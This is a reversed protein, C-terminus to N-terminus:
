LSNFDITFLFDFFAKNMEPVYSTRFGVQSPAYFRLFHVDGLFEAGLSNMKDKYTGAIHGNKFMFPKLYAMDSFLTVTLRKFYVYKGISLDPYILPFKYDVTFISMRSTSLKSYGRPYRILDAYSFNDGPNKVQMGGYLKIGHDRFAGPLYVVGQFTKLVGMGSTLPISHRLTLDTIFGFRPYVGRYTQPIIQQYYLRYLFSQYAKETFNKPTSSNKKNSSYSYRVLPEFFRKYKGRDFRFPINVDAYFNHNQYSFSEMTTDSKIVEGFSNKTQTILKYQSKNKGTNFEFSMVPYWGKYTYRASYRGTRDNVDWKYGVTTLATGLKNQSMLSIGPSFLYNESDIYIPAWSHFNFLHTIKHYPKSMFKLSDPNSFDPIGREQSALKEALPYIEDPKGTVMKWNGTAPLSILRYGNSTYDSLLIESKSASVSPFDCGFRPEYVMFEENKIPDYSYLGDKHNSGAIFFLKNEATFLHKIDLHSIPVTLDFYPKLLTTRAIKKGESTLVILMLQNNDLWVPSFMYNEPSKKKEILKGNDVQYVSLYCNNGFDTEIVAVKTKDPSLAPSVAKMAPKLNKTEGTEFNFFRLLAKGSHAWRADPLEESWVIWNDRYSISGDFIAGPQCVVKVNRDASIKVFAPVKSHSIRYALVTSDNVRYGYQYSTFNKEPKTIEKLDISKYRKDENKWVFELSDFVSKYLKPLTKGTNKTLAYKFPVVILAKKGVTNIVSDWLAAGYHARAGGALYYGLKYHDPIYERFSGNYAKDYSMDGKEVIRAKHEMLFSPQRGRGYSSLATETIVADGEILWWPIYAGFFLATGQEGLLLKVLSPLQSNMKDVQVVHRFEHLALQELWDQAYIDQHPTTFLESRRPAWAVLGNSKITQTHLIVSIKGPRHNLTNGGYEYVKELIYTLRQAEIEYYGPYIVQFDPTNIQRWKIRAPDQGTQFYQGNLNLFSLLVPLLFVLKRM